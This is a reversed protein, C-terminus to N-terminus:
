RCTTSIFRWRATSRCFCVERGNRYHNVRQSAELHVTDLLEYIYERDAWYFDWDSDSTEKWGRRLLTDYITNRFNTKFRLSGPARAVTSVLSGPIGGAVGANSNSAARVRGGASRAGGAENSGAANIGVRTQRTGRAASSASGADMARRERDTM